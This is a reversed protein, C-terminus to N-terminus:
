TLGHVNFAGFIQETVFKSVKSEGVLKPDIVAVVEHLVRRAVDAVEAKGIVQGLHVRGEYPALVALSVDEPIANPSFILRPM